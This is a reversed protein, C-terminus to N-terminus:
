SEVLLGNKALRPLSEDIVGTLVQRLTTGPPLQSDPTMEGRNIMAEIEDIVEDRTRSGDLLPVFAQEIGSLNVRYHYPNVVQHSVQAQVRALPRAKPRAPVTLSFPPVHRHLWVFSSLYAQLLTRAFYERAQPEAGDLPGSLGASALASKVPGFLEDATMATPWNNWLVQILAKVAAHCTSLKQKQLIEYQVYTTDDLSPMSEPPRASTTFRLQGMVAPDFGRKVSVSAHCLLSQRFTRCLFFDIYQELQIIDDALQKITDTVKAPLMSISPSPTAEDVYQLGHAAIREAFEWFYCPQNFMEMYEHFLYSASEKPLDAGYSELLRNFAKDSPPIETVLFKLFGMAESLQEKPTDFQRGRYNMVDRVVEKLKWGPYTNYSIYALGNPALRRRCVELIQEQVEPPVWSYVGHCIIYDFQGFSDDLDTVSMAQLKLNKLGVARLIEQGADIQVPSLDIGVFQSEPLYQAMPLLNAGNACGIELFRCNCAPATALGYLSAVASMYDPHSSALAKSEYPVADYSQRLRDTM